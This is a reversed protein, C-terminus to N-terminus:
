TADGVTAIARHERIARLLREPTIPIEDIEVGLHVLADSVANAIAAPAGIMGGEGMGKAGTASHASPTELHHIEIRPIEAATPVLFDAFTGSLPQARDDYALREYLAAAIGQAVGGHVQGEVIMPNIVSGCDEVVVYRRVEVAGTAPDVEVEAGHTANSFTGPPDFTSRVELGPEAGAPLRHAAHHALRAVEAIAVSRGPAGLVSISGDALEVDEPAVELLHAGIRALREALMEGARKVAGGGIAISRSAFTGWGYPTSDTDGQVVRVDDPRLGLEDAAIQAFTTEHGQGHSLTGVAVTVGGSADMRLHASEFGPTVAMKRSAFAPTGYATRESFCSFGQGILRGEVRADAQRERWTDHDLAAACRELSEQYSGEDVLLGSASRYPFEGPGILNRMRVEVPDLDLRRAVMDMVREMVFTIQPRSVGRYPAIPPKDTAVARARARYRTLRYPGPLETAAMLPEVGCTFPYCSYAGVDCAIDADLGLLTGDADFGVRVAHRQEHGHFSATLNELRDEIWKVPRRLRAAAASVLIEERGVVCKLGFGGGVDPTIVRVRREPLGLLDAITTRVLHPIQHSIHVILRRERADWEAVCARTEMPAATLRGSSFTVDVVVAAADLAADLEADDAMAADLLLNGKASAHVLPAGEATAEDISSVGDDPVYEVEVAEAGDEAAYRSGALVMALPEGAFRVVDRALLPMETVVFDERELIPRLGPLELDAADWVEVVGPVRRAAGADVWGIRAAAFPSRAFAAHLLGPPAVDDVFRSAGTLLRPDEVRRVPTGSWRAGNRGSARAAADAM